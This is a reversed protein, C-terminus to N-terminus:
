INQLILLPLFRTLSYSSEEKYAHMDILFIWLAKGVVDTRMVVSYHLDGSHVKILQAYSLSTSVIQSNLDILHCHNFYSVNM